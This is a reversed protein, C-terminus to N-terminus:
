DRNRAVLVGLGVGVLTGLGLAYWPYERLYDDTAGAVRRAHRSVHTASDDLASKALRLAVRVKARIKQIDPSDVDAVRKLLDEVGDFLERYDHDLPVSAKSEPSSSELTAAM